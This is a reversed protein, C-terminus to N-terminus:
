SLRKFNTNEIEGHTTKEKRTVDNNLGFTEPSVDQIHFSGIPNGRNDFVILEGTNSDYIEM